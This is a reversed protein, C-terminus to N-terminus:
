PGTGGASQYIADMLEMARLCNSPDAIPPVAGTQVASVFSTFESPDFVVPDFRPTLSVQRGGALTFLTLEPQKGPFKLYKAGGKTGYLEYGAREDEAFSSWSCLFSLSRGGAFKVYASVMDECDMTKGGPIEVTGYTFAARNPEGVFKRFCSASVQSVGTFDSLFLSLDLMHVGIDMLCGGGSLKRDLFWPVSPLGAPRRWFADMHYIDGFFGELALQKVYRSQPLFRNNLGIMLTKGGAEAAKVMDRAAALSDAMPKECHVHKGHKLAEISVPAHLFNPLAVAVFDLEPLDLLRRYDDFLRPINYERGARELAAPNVEAAAYLEVQDALRAYEPLFKDFAIGGCGILGMKLM